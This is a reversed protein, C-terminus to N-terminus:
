RMNGIADIVVCLYCLSCPESLYENVLSIANHMNYVSYNNILHRGAHGLMISFRGSIIHCYM